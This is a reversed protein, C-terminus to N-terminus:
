LDKLAHEKVTADPRVSVSMPVHRMVRIYDLPQTSHYATLGSVHTHDWGQISRARTM